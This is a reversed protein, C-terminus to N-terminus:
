GEETPAEPADLGDIRWAAKILEESIKFERTGVYDGIIADVVCAGAQSLGDIMEHLKAKYDVRDAM